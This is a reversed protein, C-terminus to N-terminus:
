KYVLEKQKCREIIRRRTFAKKYKKSTWKKFYMQGEYKEFIPNLSYKVFFYDNLMFVNGDNTFIVWNDEPANAIFGRVAQKIGQQKIALFVEDNTM